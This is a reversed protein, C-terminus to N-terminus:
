TKEKKHNSSKRYEAVKRSYEDIDPHDKWIGAFAVWPNPRLEGAMPLEMIEANALRREAMAKLCDIAKERTEAEASLAVPHSASARYKKLGIKEILVTMNM